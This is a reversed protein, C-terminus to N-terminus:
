SRELKKLIAQMYKNRPDFQLFCFSNLLTEENRKGTSIYNLRSTPYLGCMLLSFAYANGDFTKAHLDIIWKDFRWRNLKTVRMLDRKAWRFPIPLRRYPYLTKILLTLAKRDTENM